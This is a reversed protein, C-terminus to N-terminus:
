SAKATILHTSEDDTNFWFYVMGDEVTFCESFDTKQACPRVGKYRRSAQKILKLKLENM